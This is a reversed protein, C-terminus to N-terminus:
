YMKSNINKSIGSLLLVYYPYMLLLWPSTFYSLTLFPILGHVSAMCQVCTCIPKSWFDGLKKESAYRVRWLFMKSDNMIGNSDAGDHGKIGHPHLTYGTAYHFGIIVWANLYALLLLAILAIVVNVM